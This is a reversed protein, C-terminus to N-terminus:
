PKRGTQKRYQEWRALVAQRASESREEASLKAARAPGGKLGGKRGLAVAAPNKRKSKEMDLVIRSREPFRLCLFAQCSRSRERIIGRM